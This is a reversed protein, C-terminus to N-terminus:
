LYFEYALIVKLLVHAMSVEVTVKELFLWWEQQLTNAINRSVTVKSFKTDYRLKLQYQLVTIYQDILSISLECLHLILIWFWLNHVNTNIFFEKYEM